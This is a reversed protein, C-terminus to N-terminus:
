FRSATLSVDASQWATEFTKRVDNADKNQMELSQILGYMAWGNKPYNKLNQRYVQEVELALGSELLAKGLILRTPYYWFPPETYPLEDQITVANKFNLIADEQKGELLAIEGQVLEDAINLIMSAPYAIADLDKVGTTERLPM